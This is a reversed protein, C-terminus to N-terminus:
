RAWKGHPSVSSSETVGPCFQYLQPEVHSRCGGLLVGEAVTGEEEETPM